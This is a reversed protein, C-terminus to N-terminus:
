GSAKQVRARRASALGFIIGSAVLSIFHGGSDIALLLPKDQWTWKGSHVPLVFLLTLVVAWLAGGAAGRTGASRLVVFVGLAMLFNFCLGIVAKGPDFTWEPPTNTLAAWTKGFVAYWAISLAWNAFTAGVLARKPTDGLLTSSSMSIM